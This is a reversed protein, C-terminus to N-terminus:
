DIIELTYNKEEKLGIASVVTRLSRAVSGNKGIIKGIDDESVRIELISEENGPIESINVSDKDKVLNEVVYELLDVSSM